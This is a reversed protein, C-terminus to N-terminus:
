ALSELRDLMTRLVDRDSDPRRPQEPVVDDDELWGRLTLFM